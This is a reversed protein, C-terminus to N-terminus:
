IAYIGKALIDKIEQVEEKTAYSSGDENMFNYDSVQVFGTFRPVATLLSYMNAYDKYVRGYQSTFLGWAFTNFVIAPTKQKKRIICSYPSLLMSPDGSFAVQGRDMLTAVKVASKAISTGAMMAGSAIALPNGTAAFGISGTIAGAVTGVVTNLTANIKENNNERYNSASLSVKQGVQVRGSFIDCKKTINYLHVTGSGDYLSLAYYVMLEDGGNAVIDLPTFGYYPIYIDHVCYPPLDQYSSPSPCTFACLILYPMFMGYLMVQRKVPDHHVDLIPYNSGIGLAYTANDSRWSVDILFPWVIASIIYDNYTDDYYTFYQVDALEGMRLAYPITNSPLNSDMPTVDPLGIMLGDVTPAVIRNEWPESGFPWSSTPAINERVARDVFVCLTSRLETSGYQRIAFTLNKLSHLDSATVDTYTVTEKDSWSILPDDILDFTINNAFPTIREVFQYQNARFIDKKFSMLVDVHLHIRWLHMKVSVVETVFYYRQFEPIYAYNFKTGELYTPNDSLDTETPLEIMIVPNVISSEERLTGTLQMYLTLQSSKNYTNTRASSKYLYIDM